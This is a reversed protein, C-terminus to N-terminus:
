VKGHAIQYIAAGAACLFLILGWYRLPVFFFTHQAPHVLIEERTEMDIVKRSKTGPLLQGIILCGVGAIVLAVPMPWVHEQYYTTDHSIARTTLEMLLCSAFTIVPVLYGQGSWVLHIM